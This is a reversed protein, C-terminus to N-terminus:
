IELYETNPSPDYNIGPDLDFMNFGNTAGGYYDGGVPANPSYEEFSTPGYNYFPSSYPVSPVIYPDMEPSLDITAGPVSADIPSYTQQPLEIPPPSSYTQTSTDKASEETYAWGQESHVTVCDLGAVCHDLTKYYDGSPYTYTNELVYSTGPIYQSDITGSPVYGWSINQSDSPFWEETVYDGYYARSPTIPSWFIQNPSYVYPQPSTYYLLSPTSTVYVTVTCSRTGAPSTVTMPYTTTTNPRVDRYGQLAVEGMGNIYAHTANETYWIIRTQTGPAINGPPTSIACSPPQATAASAVFPLTFLAALFVGWKM